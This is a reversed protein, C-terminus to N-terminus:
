TVKHKLSIQLNLRNNIKYRGIKGLRFYKSDFIRSFESINKYFDAINFRLLPYELSTSTTLLPSNFYFFDSHQLSRAIEVDSLGMERLLQIIPKKTLKDIQIFIDDEFRNTIPYKLIDIKKERYFLFRIWSGYEPILTATYLDKEEYKNQYLDKKEFYEKNKIIESRKYNRITPFFIISKLNKTETIFNNVVKLKKIDQHLDLKVLQSQELKNIKQINERFILLDSKKLLTKIKDKYINLGFEYNKIRQNWIEFYKNILEIEYLEFIEPPNSKLTSIIEETYFTTLKESEQNPSLDNDILM